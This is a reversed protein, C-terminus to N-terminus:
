SKEGILKECLFKLQKYTIADDTTIGFEDSFFENLGRKDNKGLFIYEEWLTYKKEEESRAKKIEHNEAIDWVKIFKKIWQWQPYTLENEGRRFDYDMDDASLLPSIGNADGWNQYIVNLRNLTKM